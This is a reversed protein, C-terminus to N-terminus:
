LRIHRVEGRGLREWSEDGDPREAMEAQDRRLIAVAALQAEARALWGAPLDTSNISRQGAAILIERILEEGTEARGIWALARVATTPDAGLVGKLRAELDIVRSRLLEAEEEAALARELLSTM